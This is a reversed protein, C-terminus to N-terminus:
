DSAGSKRPLDIFQRMWKGFLAGDAPIKISARSAEAVDPGLYGEYEDILAAIFGDDMEPHFQTTFVQDGLATMAFPCEPSAGLLDFGDPLGTVQAKNAAYLKLHDARPDMWDRRENVSFEAGGFIWFEKREVVGGLAAMIAQHGFCLGILPTNATVMQRIHDCLRDIWADGDDLYAPSGTLIVADYITPDEAFNGETVDFIEFEYRGGAGELRKVVKVADSEHRAAFESRDTNTLYIAIKKM